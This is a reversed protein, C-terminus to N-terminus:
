KILSIDLMLKDNLNSLPDNVTPYYGIIEYIYYCLKILLKIIDDINDKITYNNEDIKKEYLYICKGFNLKQIQDLGNQTNIVRSLYVPYFKYNNNLKYLESSLDNFDTRFAKVENLKEKGTKFKCQIFFWINGFRILRDITTIGKYKASIQKEKYSEDCNISDLIIDECEFGLKSPTLVDSMENKCWENIAM